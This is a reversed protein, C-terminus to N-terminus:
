IGSGQKGAKAGLPLAHDAYAEGVLGAPVFRERPVAGMAALVRRDRIGRQQLDRRLMRERDAALNM